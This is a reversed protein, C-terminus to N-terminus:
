RQDGAQKRKWTTFRSPRSERDGKLGLSRIMSHAAGRGEARGEAETRGSGKAQSHWNYAPQPHQSAGVLDQETRMPAGPHDCGRRAQPRETFWSGM